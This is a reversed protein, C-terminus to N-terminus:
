TKLFWGFLSLLRSTQALLRPFCLSAVSQVCTKLLNTEM